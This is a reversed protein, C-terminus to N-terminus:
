GTIGPADVAGGDETKRIGTIYIRVTVAYTVPVVIARIVVVGSLGIGVAIQQTVNAVGVVVVVANVVTGVRVVGVRGDASVGIGVIAVIARILDVAETRQGVAIRVVVPWVGVIVAQAIVTVRTGVPIAVAIAIGIVGAHRTHFVVTRVVVVRIM